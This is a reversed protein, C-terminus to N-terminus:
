IEFDNKYNEKSFESKDGVSDGVAAVQVIDHDATGSHTVDPLRRIITAPSWIGASKNLTDVDSLEHNVLQPELLNIFETTLNVRCHTYLDRIYCDSLEGVSVQTRIPLAILDNSFSRGVASNLEDSKRFNPPPSQRINDIRPSWLGGSTPTASTVIIGSIDSTSTGSSVSTVPATRDIGNRIVQQPTRNTGTNNLTADSVIEQLAPSKLM